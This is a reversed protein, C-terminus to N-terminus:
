EEKALLLIVEDGELVQAPGSNVLYSSQAHLVPSTQPAVDTPGGESARQVGLLNGTALEM